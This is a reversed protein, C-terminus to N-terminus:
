STDLPSESEREENPVTIGALQLRRGIEEESLTQDLLQQRALLEATEFAACAVTKLESYSLSEFLSLQEEAHASDSGVNSHVRLISFRPSPPCIAQTRRVFADDREVAM